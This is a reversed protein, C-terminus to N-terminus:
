IRGFGGPTSGSGGSASWNGCSADTVLLVSGSDVALLAEDRTHTELSLPQRCRDQFRHLLEENWSLRNGDPATIRLSPFEMGGEGMELSARYLLMEPIDRATVFRDWGEKCGDVIAHGTETCVTRSWKSKM